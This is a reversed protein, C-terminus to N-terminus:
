QTELICIKKKIKTNSKLLSQQKTQQFYTTISEHTTIFVIESHLHM